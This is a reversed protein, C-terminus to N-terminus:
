GGRPAGPALTQPSRLGPRRRGGQVGQVAGFPHHRASADDRRHRPDGRATAPYLRAGRAPLGTTEVPTAARPLAVVINAFLDRVIRSLPAVSAESVSPLQEVLARVFSIFLRTEPTPELRGHADIVGAAEELFGRSLSIAITQQRVRNDCRGLRSLNAVIIDDAGCVVDIGPAVFRSEGDYPLVILFHGAPTARLYHADRDMTFPDVTQVSVIMRDLHWFSAEAFFPGAGLRTVRSHATFAAWAAFQEDPAFRRTEFRHTPITPRVADM